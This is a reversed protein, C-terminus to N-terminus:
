EEEGRRKFDACVYRRDFGESIDMDHKGCQLTSCMGYHAYRCIGCNDKTFSLTFDCMEKKQWDPLDYM